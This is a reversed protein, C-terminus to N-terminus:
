VSGGSEKGSVAAEDATSAVLQDSSAFAKATNCACPQLDAITTERSSPMSSEASFRRLNLAEITCCTSFKSSPRASAIAAADGGSTATVTRVAASSSAVSAATLAAARRVASAGGSEFTCASSRASSAAASAVSASAVSAAARNSLALSSAAVAAARATSARAATFRARLRAASFRSACRSRAAISASSNPAGRGIVLFRERWHPARSKISFGSPTAGAM